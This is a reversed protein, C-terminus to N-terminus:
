CGSDAVVYACWSVIREYPVCYHMAMRELQKDHLKTMTFVAGFYKHQPWTSQSTAIPFTAAGLLGKGSIHPHPESLHFLLPSVQVRRGSDIVM